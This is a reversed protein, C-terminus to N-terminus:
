GRGVVTKDSEALVTEHWTAQITMTIFGATEQWWEM